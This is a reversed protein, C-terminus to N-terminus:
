TMRRISPAFRIASVNQAAFCPPRSTLFARSEVRKVRVPRCPRWGHMATSAKLTGVAIHIPEIDDGISHQELWGFLHCTTPYYVLRTNKNRITAAFFELFHRAAYFSTMPWTAFTEAKFTAARRSENLEDRSELKM